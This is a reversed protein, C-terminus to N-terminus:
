EDGLYSNGIPDSPSGFAADRSSKSASSYFILLIGGTLILGFPRPRFKEADLKQLLVHSAFFLFGAIFAHGAFAGVSVRLPPKESWLFTAWIGWFLGLLVAWGLLPLFRGRRLCRQVSYWGIGASILAHWSLGTCILSLPFPASGETGYLTGVLMGEAIWGYCAGALLVTAASKAQFWRIMALFWYAITSYALWTVALDSVNDTPKFVSWFLRESCFFLVYGTGFVLGANRFFCM